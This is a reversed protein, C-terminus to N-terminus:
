YNQKLKWYTGLRRKRQRERTVIKASLIATSQLIGPTAPVMVSSIDFIESHTNSMRTKKM